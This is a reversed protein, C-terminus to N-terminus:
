LNIGAKIQSTINAIISQGISCRRDIIKVITKYYFIKSDLVAMKETIENIDKGAKARMVEVKEKSYKSLTDAWEASKIAELKARKEELLTIKTTAKYSMAEATVIQKMLEQPNDPSLPESLFDYEGKTQNM